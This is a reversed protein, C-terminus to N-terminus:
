PVLELLTEFNGRIGPTEAGGEDLLGKKIVLHGAEEFIGLEVGGGAWWCIAGAEEGAVLQWSSNKIDTCNGEYTGANYKKDNMAVTVETHPIGRVTDDGVDVFSWTLKPMPCPAFECQPGVRGVASGDPCIKAEMTCAVAQPKAQPYLFFGGVGIAVIGVGIGVIVGIKSMERAYCVAYM